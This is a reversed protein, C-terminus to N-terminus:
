FCTNLIIFQKMCRSVLAIWVDIRWSNAMKRHCVLFVRYFISFSCRYRLLARLLPTPKYCNTTVYVCPSRVKRTRASSVDTTDLDYQCSANMPLDERDYRGTDVSRLTQWMRLYIPESLFFNSIYTYISRTVIRLYEDFAVFISVTWFWSLFDIFM